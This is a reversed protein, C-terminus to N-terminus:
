KRKGSLEVLDLIMGEEVNKLVTYPLSKALWELAGHRRPGHFRFDDSFNTRITALWSRHNVFGFLSNNELTGIPMLVLYFHAAWLRSSILEKSRQTNRTGWSREQYDTGNPKGNTRKCFKQSLVKRRTNPYTCICVPRVRHAIPFSFSLVASHVDRM